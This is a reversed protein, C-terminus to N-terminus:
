KRMAAVYASPLMHYAMKFYRAFYKPNNFGVEYAVETVNMGTKSLLQAARQLRISRIFEVPSHGTLSFIRRYVSVRNMCLERSLAEVSFGPDSLHKEVIELAKQMFKEDPSLVHATVATEPLGIVQKAPAQRALLNRMRSLLIEFNFPKVMYDAAGAELGKLQEEEAAMATLLIVPTQRTRPDHKIKKCLEFGDMVPMNIDSVVLHPHASLTKQWGTGGDAAEIIEYYAKLNDKLYFRFDNNDEVLLVTPKERDKKKGAVAAQLLVPAAEEQHDPAPEAAIPHL